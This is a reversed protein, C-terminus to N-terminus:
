CLKKSGKANKGMASEISEVVNLTYEELSETHATYHPDKCSLCDVPVNLGILKAELVKKFDERADANAKDWSSRTQSRIAEVGPDFDGVAIKAFIPSHNSPNAGSHVVGAETTVNYVGPSVVFHDITSYSPVNNSLHMHTYDVEQIYHTPDPDPNQWMFTLGLEGHLCNKVINTFRTNRSFHCNLDAALFINPCDNRRAISVIEALTNLVESDDFHEVRPDCPFYGNIVLISAEPLSFKTAQLRFNSCSVKSVYKTLSKRWLTVLGGKGRGRSVQRTDKLAPVIFM